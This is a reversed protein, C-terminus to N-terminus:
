LREVPKGNAKQSRQIALGQKIAKKKAEAGKYCKGAAGYQWGRGCKQIPM